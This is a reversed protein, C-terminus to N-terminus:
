IAGLCIIVYRRMSSFDSKNDLSACLTQSGPAAPLASRGRTQTRGLSLNCSSRLGPPGAGSATSKSQQRRVIPTNAM